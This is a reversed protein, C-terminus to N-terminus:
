DVHLKKKRYYVYSVMLFVAIAALVILLIIIILFLTLPAGYVELAFETTLECYSYDPDVVRAQFIFIGDRGTPLFRMANPGTSNLIEYATKKWSDYRIRQGEGFCSVQISLLSFLSLSFSLNHADTLVVLHDPISLHLLPCPYMYM